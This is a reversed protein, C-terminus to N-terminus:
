QRLKIKNELSFSLSLCVSLCVFIVKVSLGAGKKNVKISYFLVIYIYKINGPETKKKKLFIAMCLLVFGLYILQLGQTGTFM